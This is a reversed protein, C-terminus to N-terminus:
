TTGGEQLMAKFSSESIKREDLMTLIQEYINYRYISSERVLDDKTIDAESFEEMTTRITPLEYGMVKLENIIAISGTLTSKEGDSLKKTAILKKDAKLESIISTYKDKVELDVYNQLDKIFYLSIRKVYFDSLLAFVMKGIDDVHKEVEDQYYPIVASMSDHNGNNMVKTHIYKTTMNHIITNLYMLEKEVDLDVSNKKLYIALEPKVGDIYYIILGLVGGGLLLMFIMMMLNGSNFEM